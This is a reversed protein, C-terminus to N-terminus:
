CATIDMFVQSKRGRKWAKCGFCLALFYFEPSAVVLKIYKRIKLLVDKGWGEESVYQGLETAWPDMEQGSFLTLCFGYHGVVWKKKNFLVFPFYLFVVIWLCLRKVLRSFYCFCQTFDEPEFLNNEWFADYSDVHKAWKEQIKDFLQFPSFM